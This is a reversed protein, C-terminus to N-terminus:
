LLPPGRPVSPLDNHLSVFVLHTSVTPLAPAYVGSTDASPPLTISLHVFEKCVPCDSDSGPDHKPAHAHGDHDAHHHATTEHLWQAAGGTYFVAVLILAIVLIRSDM